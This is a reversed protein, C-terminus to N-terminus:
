VLSSLFTGTAELMREPTYREASVKAGHELESRRHPDMLLALCAHALAEPDGVSILFGNKGHEIVESNGGAKTAVIAKGLDLAELLIHSLGEYTSNLVFVDAAQMVALTEGHPLAGTFTFGDKLRLRAYRELAEREPGDGVIILEAPVRERIYTMAAIVGHMGKWPVLRGATVIKPGALGAVSDPLAGIADHPKANEIVTIREEPVGWARVIRKLYESPVIIAVARMAVYTEVARLLYVPLPVDKTRVFEELPLWLRFRQRGQEWAYDGVIKVVFKKRALKAALLAPLGVSVPDLALVLDADKAAQYVKWFYSVHRILKPKERVDGFKILTVEVGRSPLGDELAKAYTAPGGSEPPYLPTAILLRM